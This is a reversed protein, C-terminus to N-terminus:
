VPSRLVQNDIVRGTITGSTTQASALGATLVVLAAIGLSAKLSRTSHGGRGTVRTRAALAATASTRAVRLLWNRILRM